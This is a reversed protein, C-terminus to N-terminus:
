NCAQGGSEHRHYQYDTGNYRLVAFCFGPGGVELDPYDHKGKITLFNPIGISDAILRYDTNTKTLLAFAQGTNGYHFLSDAEDIILVEPNNDGNIDQYFEIRAVACHNENDIQKCKKSTLTQPDFEGLFEAAVFAKQAQEPSLQVNQQALANQANESVSQDDYSSAPIAQTAAPASETNAVPQNKDGSCATLIM